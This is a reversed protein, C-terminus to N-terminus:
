SANVFTKYGHTACFLESAFRRDRKSPINITTERRRTEFVGNNSNACSPRARIGVLSFIASGPPLDNGLVTFRKWFTGKDKSKTRIGSHSGGGGGGKKRGKPFPSVNTM